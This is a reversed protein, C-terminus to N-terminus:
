LYIYVGRNKPWSTRVRGFPIEWGASLRDGTGNLPNQFLLRKGRRCYFFIPQIGDRFVLQVPGLDAIELATCIFGCMKITDCTNRHIEQQVRVAPDNGFAQPTSLQLPFESFQHWLKRKSDHLLSPFVGPLDVPM